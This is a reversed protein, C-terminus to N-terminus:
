NGEPTAVTTDAATAAEATPTGVTETKPFYKDRINAIRDAQTGDDEEYKNPLQRPEGGRTGYVYKSDLNVGDNPAQNHDGMCASLSVMVVLVFLKLFISKM